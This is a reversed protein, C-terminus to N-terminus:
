QGGGPRCASCHGLIAFHSPDIEFGYRRRMTAALGSFAEAPAEVTMGCSECVLHGHALTAIQYTAPGHGLHAHTVVGLEELEELNRYVTSLHVDPNRSQIEAALEEASLHRHASFLVELLARRSSTARGGRARLEALVSEVTGFGHAPDSPARATM